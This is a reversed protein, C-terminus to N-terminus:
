GRMRTLDGTPSSEPSTRYGWRAAAEFCEGVPRVGDSCSADTLSLAAASVGLQLCRSIPWGEHLGFLVGAALADGAGASGVIKESPFKLSPQWVGVSDRGCAYVAEPFHIIVWQEVGHDLLIRAAEEVGQSLIRDGERLRVGSLREAEYDNALLVDVSPLAPLIVQTFRDSAESVCDVSTIM